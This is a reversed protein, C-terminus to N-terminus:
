TAVWVTGCGTEMSKRSMSTAESRVPTRGWNGREGRINDEERLVRAAVVVPREREHETRPYDDGDSRRRSREGKWCSSLVKKKKKKKEGSGSVVLDIGDGSRSQTQWKESAL